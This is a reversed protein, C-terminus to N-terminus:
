SAGFVACSAPRRVCCWGLVEGQCKTGPSSLCVHINSISLNLSSCVFFGVQIIKAKATICEQRNKLFPEELLAVMLDLAKTMDQDDIEQDRSHM